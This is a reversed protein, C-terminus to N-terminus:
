EEGVFKYRLYELPANLREYPGCSNGDAKFSIPKSFIANKDLVALEYVATCLYHLHFGGILYLSLSNLLAM